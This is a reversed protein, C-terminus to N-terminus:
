GEFLKSVYSTAAESAADALAQKAQRKGYKVAGKIGGKISKAARTRVGSLVRKKKKKKVTTPARSSTSSGRSSSPRSKATEFATSTSRSSSRKKGTRTRSRSPRSTSSSESSSPSLPRTPPPVPPGEYDYLWDDSDDDFDLQQRPTAMQTGSPGPQSAYDELPGKSRVTTWLPTQQGSVARGPTLGPPKPPIPPKKRPPLPKKFTGVAKTTKPISLLAKQLATTTQEDTFEQDIPKVDIGRLRRVGKDVVCQLRGAQKLADIDGLKRDDLLRCAKAVKEPLFRVREDQGFLNAFYNVDEPNERRELLIEEM